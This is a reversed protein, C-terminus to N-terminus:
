CIPSLVHTMASSPIVALNRKQSAVVMIQSPPFEKGTRHLDLQDIEASLRKEEKCTILQAPAILNRMSLRTLKVTM